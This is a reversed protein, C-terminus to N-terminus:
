LVRGAESENFQARRQRSTQVASEEAEIDADTDNGPEEDSVRGM